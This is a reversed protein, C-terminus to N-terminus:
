YMCYDIDANAEVGGGRKGRKRHEGFDLSILIHTRNAVSYRYISYHTSKQVIYIHDNQM